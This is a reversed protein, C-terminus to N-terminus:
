LYSLKYFGTYHTTVIPYDTFSNEILLILNFPLSESHPSVLVKSL